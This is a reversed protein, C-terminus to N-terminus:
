CPGCGFDATKGFSAGLDSIVYHTGDATTLIINNEDKLDWNNFMAMMIKLGDLERTGKYPNNTWSWIEGRKVDKPRAELRVNRYPRVTPLVLDPVVYNIETKYGIAWLLRVAAVEPRSEDAMKAIWENGHRDRIRYKLNAGGKPRPDIVVANKLDPKM